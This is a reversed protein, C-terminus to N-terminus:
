YVGGGDVRGHVVSRKLVNMSQPVTSDPKNRTPKKRTCDKKGESGASSEGSRPVGGANTIPGHM